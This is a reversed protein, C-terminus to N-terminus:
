ISKKAEEKKAVVAKSGDEGEQCDPKDEKAKADAKAKPKLRADAKKAAHRKPKAEDQCKPRPTPRRTADKAEAKAAAAAPQPQQTVAAPASLPQRRGDGPPLLPQAFAGAAFLGAILTALLKNM